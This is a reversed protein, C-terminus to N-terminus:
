RIRKKRLKGHPFFHELAEAVGAGNSEAAVPGGHRTVLHKVEPIANDPCALWGAHTPDMM